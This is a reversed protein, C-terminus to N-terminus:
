IPKLLTLGYRDCVQELRSLLEEVEKESSELDIKVCKQKSSSDSFELRVVSLTDLYGFLENFSINGIVMATLSSKRFVEKVELVEVGSRRAENLMAGIQLTDPFEIVVSVPVYLEGVREREHIISVINGGMKAIPELVRLLQGPTDPLAFTISYRM